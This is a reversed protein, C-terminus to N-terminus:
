RRVSSRMSGRARRRRARELRQEREVGRARRARACCRRLPEGCSRRGHEREQEVSPRASRRGRTRGSGRPPRRAADLHQTERDAEAAHQPAALGRGVAGLEDDARQREAAVHLHEVLAFARDVGVSSSRAKLRLGSHCRAAMTAAPGTALRSSATSSYAAACQIPMSSGFASSPGGTAPLRASRAPRRAPSQTRAYEDSPLSQCSRREIVSSRQSTVCATSRPSFSRARTVRGRRDRGARRTAARSSVSAVCRHRRSLQHLADAEAAAYLSGTSPSTRAPPAPRRPGPQAGAVPHQADVALRDVIRRSM